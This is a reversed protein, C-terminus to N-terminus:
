VDVYTYYVDLFINYKLFFRKYAMKLKKFRKYVLKKLLFYLYFRKHVNSIFMTACYVLM